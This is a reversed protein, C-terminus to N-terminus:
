AALREKLTEHLMPYNIIKYGDKSTVCEPYKAQVESAAFGTSMEAGVLDKAEGKWDWEYWTLNHIKGIPQMNEKLREDSFFMAAISAVALLTNQTNQQGQARANAANVNGQNIANTSGMIGQSTHFASQTIGNAAANGGGILAQSANQAGQTLFAGQQAAGQTALQGQVQAAQNAINSSALAVQMGTAGQQNAGATLTNGVNAATGTEIGTVNNAYNAGTANMANTASQGINVNNLQRGYLTSDLGLATSVDIDAAARAAAGSRNMGAASLRSDASNMREAVLDAYIDSDMVESLRAAFGEATGAATVAGLSATGADAFPQLRENALNFQREQEALSVERANELGAVAEATAVESREIAEQGRQDMLERTEAATDATLQAAFRTAGATANAAGHAASMSMQAAQLATDQQIMAAREAAASQINAVEISAAAQSQAATQSARAQARSGGSGM